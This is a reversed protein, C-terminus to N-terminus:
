VGVVPASGTSINVRVGCITYESLNYLPLTLFFNFQSTSQLFEVKVGCITADSKLYFHGSDELETSSKSLKARLLQFADLFIVLSTCNAIKRNTSMSSPLNYAKFIVMTQQLIDLKGGNAPCPGM